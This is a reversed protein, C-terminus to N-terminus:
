ATAPQPGAMPVTAITNLPSSGDGTLVFAVWDVHLLTTGPYLDTAFAEVEALTSLGHCISFRFRSGRPLDLPRIGTALAAPDDVRLTASAAFLNEDTGNNMAREREAM